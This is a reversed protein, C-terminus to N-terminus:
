PPATGRPQVYVRIVAPDSITSDARYASASLAHLGVGQAEWRMEVTFVPVAAAEVPTGDQHLVDDVYLEVLSIGPGEHDQAVLLINLIEGETVTLDNPPSQFYVGFPPSAAVQTEYVLNCGATILAFALLGLVVLYRRM